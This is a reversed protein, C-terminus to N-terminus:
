VTSKMNNKMKNKKDEMVDTLDSQMLPNSLAVPLLFIILNLIKSKYDM